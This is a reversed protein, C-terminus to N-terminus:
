GPLTRWVSKLLSLLPSPPVQRHPSMTRATGLRRRDAVYRDYSEALMEDNSFRPEWNLEARAHEIDFWLERGYM